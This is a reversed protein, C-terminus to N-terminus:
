GCFGTCQLDLSATMGPGNGRIIAVSAGGISKGAGGLSALMMLREGHIV